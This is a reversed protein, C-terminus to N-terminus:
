DLRPDRLVDLLRARLRPSGPARARPRLLLPRALDRPEGGLALVRRTPPPARRPRRACTHQPRAARPRPRPPPLRTIARAPCDGHAGAWPRRDARAPGHASLPAQRRRSSRAPGRPRLDDRRPRRRLTRDPGLRRPRRP